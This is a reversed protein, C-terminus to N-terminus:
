EDGCGGRGRIVKLGYKALEVRDPEGTAEAWKNIEEAIYEMWEDTNVEQVTLICSVLHKTASRYRDNEPQTDSMVDGRIAELMAEIQRRTPGKITIVDDLELDIVQLEGRSAIVRFGDIDSWGCGHAYKEFTAQLWEETIENADSM